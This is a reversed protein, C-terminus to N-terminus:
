ASSESSRLSRPLQSADFEIGSSAMTAASQVLTKRKKALKEVARSREEESDFKEVNQCHAIKRDYLDIEQYLDKLLYRSAIGRQM